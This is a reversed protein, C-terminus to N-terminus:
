EKEPEDKGKDFDEKTVHEGLGDYKEPTDKKILGLEIAEDRNGEYEMFELLKGVDNDFRKKIHVPFQEFKSKSEAVINQMKQFEVGTVDGFKAELDQTHVILGTRDYKKIIENIDCEKKHNQETFYIPNGEEDMKGPRQCHKRMEPSTTPESEIGHKECYDKSM